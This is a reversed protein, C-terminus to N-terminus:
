RATRRCRAFGLGVLGLGLMALTGPEPLKSNALQDFDNLNDPFPNQGNNRDWLLIRDLVFNRERVGVSFSLQNGLDGVLIPYRHNGQTNHWIYTATQEGRSEDPTSSIGNSDNPLWLSDSGGDNNNRFRLFLQYDGTDNFVLNYTALGEDTATPGSQAAVLASGGSAAGDPTVVWTRGDGDPDTIKGIEAEFAIYNQGVGQLITM